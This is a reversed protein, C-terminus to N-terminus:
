TAYSSKKGDHIKSTHYPPARSAVLIVLLSGWRCSFTPLNHQKLRHFPEKTPVLNSSFEALPALEAPDSLPREGGEM